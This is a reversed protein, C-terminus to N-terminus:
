QVRLRFPNQILALVVEVPLIATIDLNASEMSVLKGPMCSPKLSLLHILIM